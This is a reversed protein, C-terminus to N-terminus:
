HAYFCWAFRRGQDRSQDYRWLVVAVCNRDADLSEVTKDAGPTFFLQNLGAVRDTEDEPIEVGNVQLVGTFASALTVGVREQRLVHDGPEPFLQRIAPDSYTPRVPAVRTQSLGWV